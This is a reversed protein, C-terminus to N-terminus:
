FSELISLLKLIVIPILKVAILLLHQLFDRQHLYVSHAKTTICLGVQHDLSIFSHLGVVILITISGLSDLNLWQPLSFAIDVPSIRQDFNYIKTGQM